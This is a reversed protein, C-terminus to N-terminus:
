AHKGPQPQTQPKTLPQQTSQHGDNSQHADNNQQTGASQRSTDNAQNIPQSMKEVAAKQRQTVKETEEQTRRAIEDALAAATRSTESVHQEATKSLEVRVGAGINTLHQQYARVKEAAPQAQSAAISLADTSSKAEILQHMNDISEQMLTEAVQVNLQSVQQLGDFMKKSLDTLFSFQAELHSKM